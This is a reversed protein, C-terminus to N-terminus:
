GLTSSGGLLRTLGRSTSSSVGVRRRKRAQADQENLADANVDQVTTATAEPTIIPNDAEAAARADAARQANRMDRVGTVANFANGWMKEEWAWERKAMDGLQELPKKVVANAARKLPKTVSKVSFGM